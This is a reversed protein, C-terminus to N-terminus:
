VSHSQGIEVGARDSCTYPEHERIAYKLVPDSFDVSPTLDLVKTNIPLEM